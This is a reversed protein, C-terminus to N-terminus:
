IFDIQASAFFFQLVFLLLLRLLDNDTFSADSTARLGLHHVDLLLRLSVVEITSKCIVGLVCIVVLVGGWSDVVLLCIQRGEHWV